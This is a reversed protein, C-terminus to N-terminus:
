FIWNKSVGLEQIFAGLRTVIRKLFFSKKQWTVFLYFFVIVQAVQGSCSDGCYPRDTVGFVTIRDAWALVTLNSSGVPRCALM